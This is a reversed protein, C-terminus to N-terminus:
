PRPGVYKFTAVIRQDPRGTQKLLYDAYINHTAPDFYNTNAPASPNLVFVRNRADPPTTNVVSTLKNTANDFTFRPSTAGFGTEGGTSSFAVQIFTGFGYEDFMDVATGSTTIMFISTKDANSGWTYTPGDAIGYAGWGTTTLTLEYNGDYDNKAGLLTYFTSFNQAIGYGSPSINAIKFALGYQTSPDFRIANTNIELTGENKGAPITITLGKPLTYFSNPLKVVGAPFQVSQGTTDLTVVIDTPAPTGTLLRATVVTTTVAKDEFSLGVTASRGPAGAGGLQILNSSSAVNLGTEAEDFAKDKLCSSFAAMVVFFAVTKLYKIM